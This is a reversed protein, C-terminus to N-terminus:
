LRTRPMPSWHKLVDDIENKVSKQRPTSKDCLGVANMFCQKCLVTQKVDEAKITEQSAPPFNDGILGGRTSPDAAYINGHVVFGETPKTIVRDCEDCLYQEVKRMRPKRAMNIAEKLKSFKSQKRLVRAAEEKERKKPLRSAEEAAEARAQAVLHTDIPPRITRILQELAEPSLSNSM